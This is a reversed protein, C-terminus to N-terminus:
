YSYTTTCSSNNNYSLDTRISAQMSLASTWGAALTGATQAINSYAQTTVKATEILKNIEMEMSKIDTDANIRERQVDLEELKLQVGVRSNELDSDTKYLGLEADFIKVNADLRALEAQLKAKFVELYGNQEAVKAKILEATTAGMAQLANATAAFAEIRAKYVEVQALQVKIHNAQWEGAITRALEYVKLFFERQIGEYEIAKAVAWQRTEREWKASEILVDRNLAAKQDGAQQAVTLLKSELAGGPLSFGRALWDTMAESQAQTAKRDETVFARDLLAREINDPMGVSGDEDMWQRLIAAPYTGESDDVNIAPCAKLIDNIQNTLKAYWTDVLTLYLDNISVGDFEPMTAILARLENLIEDLVDAIEDLDGMVNPPNDPADFDNDPATPKPIPKVFTITKDQPPIVLGGSSWIAPEGAAGDTFVNTLSGIASLALNYAADGKASVAALQQQIVATSDPGNLLACDSM